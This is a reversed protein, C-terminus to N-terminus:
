LTIIQILLADDSSSYDIGISECMNKLMVIYSNTVAESSEKNTISGAFDKYSQIVEFNNSFVIPIRSISCNLEKKQDNQVYPHNEKIMIQYKYAFLDDVLKFKLNHSILKKQNENSFYTALLGSVFASVVVLMFSDVNM